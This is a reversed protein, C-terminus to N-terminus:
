SQATSLWVYHVDDNALIVTKSDPVVSRVPSYHSIQWDRQGPPTYPLCTIRVHLEIAVARVVLEDAFENTAFKAVWRKYHELSRVPGQVALAAYAQYIIDRVHPKLMVAEDGLCMHHRLEVALAGIASLPIAEVNVPIPSNRAAHFGSLRDCLNSFPAWPSRTLAAALSLWFCANITTGARAGLDVARVVLQLDKRARAVYQQQKEHLHIPIAPVPRASTHRRMLHRVTNKDQQGYLLFSLASSFDWDFRELASTITPVSFGLEVMVNQAWDQEKVITDTPDDPKFGSQIVEIYATCKSLSPGCAHLAESVEQASFNYEELLHKTAVEAPSEKSTCKPGKSKQKKDAIDEAKKSGKFSGVIAWLGTASKTGSKRAAWGWVSQSVPAVGRKRLMTELDAFEADTAHRNHEEMLVSDLHKKHDRIQSEESHGHKHLFNDYLLDAQTEFESRVRFDKTQRVALFEELAPLGHFAVREWTTARTWGVFALGPKSAPAPMRTGSFSIITGEHATIGQCKHFTLAWALRLPLNVRLLSKTKESRVQVAPIPVWTRPLNSFVPPGTYDRFHVVVFDPLPCNDM